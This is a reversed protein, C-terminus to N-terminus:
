TVIRRNTSLNGRLTTTCCREARPLWKTMLLQLQNLFTFLNMVIVLCGELTDLTPHKKRNLWTQKASTIEPHLPMLNASKNM